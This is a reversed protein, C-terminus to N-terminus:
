VKQSRRVMVAGLGLLLLTSPKPVLIISADDYISFHKNLSDNNVM